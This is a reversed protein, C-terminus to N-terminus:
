GPIIASVLASIPGPKNPKEITQVYGSCKLGAQEPLFNIHHPLRTIIEHETCLKIGTPVAVTKDHVLYHFVYEKVGDPKGERMSATGAKGAPQKISLILQNKSGPELNIAAAAERETYTYPPSKHGTTVPGKRRLTDRDQQTWVSVPIDDYIVSLQKRLQKDRKRREDKVATTSSGKKDAYLVWLQEEGMSNLDGPTTPTNSFLINLENLNTANIGLRVKNANLYPVVVGFYNHRGLITSPYTGSHATM